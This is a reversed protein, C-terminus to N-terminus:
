EAALQYDSFLLCCSLPNFAKIELGVCKFHLNYKAIFLIIIYSNRM